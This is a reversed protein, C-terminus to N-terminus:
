FSVTSVNLSRAKDTWKVRSVVERLCKELNANKPSTTIDAGVVKGDWVAFRISFHQAASLKCPAYLSMDLLPKNLVEEELNERPLGQPVANIADNVSMGETFQPEVQESSQNLGNTEDAGETPEVIEDGPSDQVDADTDPSWSEDESRADDATKPAPSAGGCAVMWAFIGVSAVSVLVRSM